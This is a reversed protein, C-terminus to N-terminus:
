ISVSKFLHEIYQKIKATLTSVVVERERYLHIVFPMHWCSLLAPANHTKSNQIKLNQRLLSVFYKSNKFKQFNSNEFKPDERPMSQQWEIQYMALGSHDSILLTATLKFKLNV